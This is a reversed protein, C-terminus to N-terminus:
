EKSGGSQYNLIMSLFVLMIDQGIKQFIGMFSLLGEGWEGAMGM